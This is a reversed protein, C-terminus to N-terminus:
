TSASGTSIAPQAGRGRPVDTGHERHECHDRDDDHDGCESHGM